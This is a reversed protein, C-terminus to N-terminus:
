EFIEDARVLIPQPIVLGLAKAIGRNIILEFKTPQEVPLGGPRAGRLIKDVFVAARRNSEATSAGYFMFGGAEVHERLGYVAPVRTKAALRAIAVRHDVLLGDVLVVLAGARERTMAVFAGDLAHGDRAELPQLQVRLTEAERLQPANSPNSPNWLIAVRSLKPILEMLLQIQKGIIEPSMLSLGTVNGGPRGLGAVLGTAVPDVVASMVIPIAKTADRVARTAPTSYAVIVDPALGVLEAALTPLREYTGEAFRAEIRINKNEVYGLDRLGQRFADLLAARRPDSASGVSLYGIRPIRSPTQALSIAPAALLGGLGAVFARRGGAHESGARASGSASV